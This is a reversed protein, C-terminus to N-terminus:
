LKNLQEGTADQDSIRLILIAAQVQIFLDSTCTSMRASLKSNQTRGLHKIISSLVLNFRESADDVVQLLLVIM